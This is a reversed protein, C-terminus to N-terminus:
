SAEGGYPAAILPAQDGQDDLASFLEDHLVSDQGSGRGHLIVLLPRGGGEGDPVVVDVPLTEGVAKSRIELEEVDAGRTNTFGQPSTAKDVLSIVLWVALGAGILFALAIARRRWITAGTAGRM